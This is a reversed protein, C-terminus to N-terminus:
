KVFDAIPQGKIFVDDIVVKGDLVKVAVWCNTTNRRAATEAKPAKVEDMYFRNFPPDVSIMHEAQRVGSTISGCYWWNKTELYCNTAPKEFSVNLFYAFGNTDNAITIYAKKIDKSRNRRGYKGVRDLKGVDEAMVPVYREEIALRIYRGQFPDAPDIPRTRFNFSVGNDLTDEKSSIMFFMVVLQAIVLVFLVMYAIKKM